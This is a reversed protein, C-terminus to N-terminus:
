RKKGGLDDLWAHLKQERWKYYTTIGMGVVKCAERVSLKEREKEVAEGMEDLKEKSYQFLMKCNPCKSM